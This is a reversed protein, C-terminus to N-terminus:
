GFKRAVVRAFKFLDTRLDYNELLLKNKETKEQEMAANLKEFEVHASELTERLRDNKRKMEELNTLADANMASLEEFAALEMTAVKIAEPKTDFHKTAGDIVVYWGGNPDSQISLRNKMM